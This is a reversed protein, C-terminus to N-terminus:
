LLYRFNILYFIEYCFSVQLYLLALGSQDQLLLSRMMVSHHWHQLDELLVSPDMISESATEYDDHDLHWFAQVIKTNSQTVNFIQPFKLLLKIM